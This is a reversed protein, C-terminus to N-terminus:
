LCRCFWLEAWSAPALEKHSSFRGAIADRATTTKHQSGTHRASGRACVGSPASSTASAAASRRAALAEQAAARAADDARAQLGALCGASVVCTGALVAGADAGGKAGARSSSTLQLALTCVGM